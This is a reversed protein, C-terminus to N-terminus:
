GLAFNTVKNLTIPEDIQVYKDKDWKFLYRNTSNTFIGKSYEEIICYDNTGDHILNANHYLASLAEEITDYYGVCRIDGFDPYPLVYIGNNDQEILTIKEFTTITHIM